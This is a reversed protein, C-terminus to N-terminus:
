KSKVGGDVETVTAVGAVGVVVTGILAPDVQDPMTQFSIVM